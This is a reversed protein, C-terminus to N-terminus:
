ADSKAKSNMIHGVAMLAAGLRCCPCPTYCVALAITM